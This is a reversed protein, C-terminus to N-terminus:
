LKKILDNAQKVYDDNKAVTAIEITKQASARAAVKDGMALQIRAQLMYLWFAQPNAKTAKSVNSLAKNYDKDWDFYFNAAAAYVNPTITEASLAKEVQARIRDKINTSIPIRVSTKGWTMQLDCSEPMINAFQFSFTEVENDMKDAKVKFRVVDEAEKYGDTGWNTLGKNIVIEWFDKGPVTYLVYSGTDLSKGGITVRDTFKLRTAANAGTRWLKGLPALDSNEKMMSRGKSNPRSYTLEISGMGFEQVIKQNPSPAPMRIQAFATMSCLVAALTIIKKM